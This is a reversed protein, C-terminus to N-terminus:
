EMEQEATDVSIRIGFVMLMGVVMLHLRFPVLPIQVPHIQIQFANALSWWAKGIIENHIASM